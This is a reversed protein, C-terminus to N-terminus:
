SRNVCKLSNQLRIPTTMKTLGFCSTSYFLSHNKPTIKKFKLKSASHSFPTQVFIRKRTLTKKIVHPLKVKIKVTKEIKQIPNKQLHNEVDM